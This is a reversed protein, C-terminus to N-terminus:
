KARLNDSPKLVNVAQENKGITKYANALRERTIVLDPNLEVAKTYVEIVKAWQGDREYIQGLFIYSPANRPNLSVATLFYEKARDYKGTLLNFVAVSHYISYDSADGIRAKLLAEQAEDYKKQKYYARSLFVNAERFGPANKIYYKAYNVDDAYLANYNWGVAIWVVMLCIFVAAASRRWRLYIFEIMWGILVFYGMYSFFLWHGEFVLGQKPLLLGGAFVPIFGVFLLGIAWIIIGKNSNVVLYFFLAVLGAGVLLWGGIFQNLFPECWALVIGQLFFMKGLSIFFVKVLTAIYVIPDVGLGGLRNVLVDGRGLAISRMWLYLVSILIYGFLFKYGRRSEAPLLCMMSLAMTLPLFIAVEHCLLSMGFLVLSLVYISNKRERLFLLFTHLTALMLSFLLLCQVGGPQYNVWLGNSPHLCFFVAAMASLIPRNSLFLLFIYFQFGVITFILINVGNILALQGDVWRFLECSILFTIPRFWDLRPNLVPGDKGDILFAFRVRNAFEPIESGRYIAPLDYRFENHFANHYAVLNMFFLAFFLVLHNIKIKDSM